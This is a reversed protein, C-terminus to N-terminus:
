GRARSIPAAPNPGAPPDDVALAAGLAGFSAVALRALVRPGWALALPQVTRALPAVAEIHQEIDANLEALATEISAVVPALRRTALESDQGVSKVLDAKKDVLNRRLRILEALREREEDVPKPPADTLQATFRAIMVADIRDTKARQCRCKAFYRVRAPDLVHVTFGAGSLAKRVQRECGGSAELGVAKVGAARLWPILLQHGEPTNPFQRFAGGPEIACDLMAKSCDIGAFVENQTM